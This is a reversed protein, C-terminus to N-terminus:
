VMRTGLPDGRVPSVPYGYKSCLETPQVDSFVLVVGGNEGLVAGAGCVKASSGSAEVDAIFAQVRGPVVGIATLLRNNERIMWHIQQVDNSRLAHEFARTVDEFESWILSDKHRREVEMVCEGTTSEPIGTQVMYMKLRPLSVSRAKGQEFFSCGGHLSVYSDVGSPKGHQMKEADLSYEYFWDPKFDVRLYHGLARIESLVTAASSGMGCGEPISSRLKCVLGSDLTRHLGDLTHIFAFRFLDAPASLVYGIGIDGSQFEHYKNEMRRKLDRLAMLTSSESDRGGPLDFSIKDGSQPTLEFVASRDIAMAIAPKGYVVAHEGSLILKGPAIAKM